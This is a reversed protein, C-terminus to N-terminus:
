VGDGRYGGGQAGGGRCGCGSVGPGAVRYGGVGPGRGSGCRMGVWGKVGVVRHGGM